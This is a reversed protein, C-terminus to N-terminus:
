WEPLAQKFALHGENRAAGAPDVQANGFPKGFQTGTDCHQPAVGFLSGIGGGFDTMLCDAQGGVHAIVPRDTRRHLFHAAAQPRHIDHNRASRPVEKRGHQPHARIREPRHDIDIEVAREINEAAAVIQQRRIGRQDRDGGPLRDVGHLKLGVGTCGLGPDVLQDAHQRQFPAGVHPDVANRGADDIRRHPIMDVAEEGPVFAQRRALFLPLHALADVLSPLVAVCRARLPAFRAVCATCVAHAPWARCVACQSPWGRLDFLRTSLRAM